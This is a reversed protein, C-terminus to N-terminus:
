ESTGSGALEVPPPEIGEVTRFVIEDGEADVVM